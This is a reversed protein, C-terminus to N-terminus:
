FRLYLFGADKFVLIYRLILEALAVYIVWRVLVHQKGIFSDFNKNKPILRNILDMGFILAFTIAMSKLEPRSLLNANSNAIGSLINAVKGPTQALFFLGIFSWIHFTFVWSVFNPIKGSPDLGIRPWAQHRGFKTVRELVVFLGHLFGWIVFGWTLGHWIGLLVFVFVLVLFIQGRSKVNKSLPFFVYDRIWSTLSIHWGQWFKLLSTSAYVRDDFNKSVNIGFIRASGVAIDSYGSFDCFVRFISLVIAFYIILGPFNEPQAYIKQVLDSIRDAIVVKKFVGWLILQFGARINEYEFSVPNNIQNLLSKAREIPGALITPFFALFLAFRHIRTEPEIYERYIDVVYGIAVFTFFSIGLPALYPQDPFSFQISFAELMGSIAQNIPNLYKFIFLPLLLIAVGGFLWRRKQS